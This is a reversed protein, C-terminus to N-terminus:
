KAAPRPAHILTWESRQKKRGPQSVPDAPSFLQYFKGFERAFEGMNYKMGGLFQTLAESIFYTEFLVFATRDVLSRDHGAADIAVIAAPCFIAKIPGELMLAHALLVVQIDRTVPDNRMMQSFQQDFLERFMPDEPNELELKYRKRLYVEIRKVIERRYSGEEDIMFRYIADWGRKREMDDFMEASTKRRKSM